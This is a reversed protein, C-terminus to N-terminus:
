WPSVNCLLTTPSICHSDCHNNGFPEGTEFRSTKKTDRRSKKTEDLQRIHTAVMM